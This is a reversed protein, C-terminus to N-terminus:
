VPYENLRLPRFAVALCCRVCRLCRRLPHRRSQQVGGRQGRSLELAGAGHVRRSLRCRWCDSGEACHEPQVRQREDRWTGGHPRPQLQSSRHGHGLTRAPMWEDGWREGYSCILVCRCCLVTQTTLATLEQSAWLAVTPACSCATTGPQVPKSCVATVPPWKAWVTYMM